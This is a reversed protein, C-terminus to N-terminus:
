GCCPAPRGGARTSYGRPWRWALSDVASRPAAPIHPWRTWNRASYARRRARSSSPHGLGADIEGVGQRLYGFRAPRQLLELENRCLALAARHRVPHPQDFGCRDARARGPALRGLWRPGTLRGARRQHLRCSRTASRSRPEFHHYLAAPCSARATAIKACPRARYGRRHAFLEGALQVVTGRAAWVQRHEGGAIIAPGFREAV